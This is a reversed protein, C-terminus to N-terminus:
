GVMQTCVGIIVDGHFKNWRNIFWTSKKLITIFYVHKWFNFHFYKKITTCVEFILLTCASFEQKLCSIIWFSLFSDSSELCTMNKSAIWTWSDEANSCKDDDAVVTSYEKVYRLMASYTLPPYGVIYLVHCKHAKYRSRLNLAM